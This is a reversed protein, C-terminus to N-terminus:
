KEKVSFAKFVNVGAISDIGNVVSALLEEDSWGYTKVKDIDKANINEFNLSAKVTFQILANEKDTFCDCSENKLLSDLMEDSFGNHRLFTGNVSTCYASNIRVAIIYRTATFVKGSITKYNSFYELEKTNIEALKPDISKILIAGPIMVWEPFHQYIKEIEDTANERPVYNIYFNVNVPNESM